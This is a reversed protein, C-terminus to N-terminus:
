RNQNQNEEQIINIRKKGGLLIRIEDLKEYTTYLIM